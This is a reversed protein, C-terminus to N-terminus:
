IEGRVSYISGNTNKEFNPRSMTYGLHYKEHCRNKEFNPRSMTYGPQYKENSEETEELLDLSVYIM